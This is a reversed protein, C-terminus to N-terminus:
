RLDNEVVMTLLDALGFVLVGLFLVTYSSTTVARFKRRMGLSAGNYNGLQRRKLLWVLYFMYIAVAVKIILVVFYVTSTPGLTLRSAALIIGTIILIAIASKVISQFETSISLSVKTLDRYNVFVPRIVFLYFLSGGIWAVAGM